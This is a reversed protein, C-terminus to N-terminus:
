GRIATWAMRIAVGAFCLAAARQLRQRNLRNKAMVKQSQYGVIVLVASASWLALTAAAYLLIPARFKAELAATALQTLDGWEAIFVMLFSTRFISGFSKPFSKAGDLNVDDAEEAKKFWLLVAFILFMLAAGAHVYLPPLLSLLGGFAVALASQVAFAACVGCFVAWPPSQSALLVITLATKDPLEALFVLSFASAFLPWNM